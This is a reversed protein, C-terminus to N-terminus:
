DWKDGWGKMDVKARAVEEGFYFICLYVFLCLFCRM